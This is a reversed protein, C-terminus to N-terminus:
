WRDTVEVRKAEIPPIDSATAAVRYLLGTLRDEHQLREIMERAVGLLVIGGGEPQVNKLLDAVDNNVYEVVRQRPWCQPGVQM